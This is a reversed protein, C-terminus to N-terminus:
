RRYHFAPPSFILLLHNQLHPTTSHHASMHRAAVACACSFLTGIFAAGTDPRLQRLHTQLLGFSKCITKKDSESLGPWMDRLRTGPVLSQYIFNMGKEIRWGVEGKPFIKRLARITLADDLHVRPDNGFKVVHGLVEFVALRLHRQSSREHHALVDPPSPLSVQASGSPRTFFSTDPFDVHSQQESEDSPVQLVLGSPTATTTM